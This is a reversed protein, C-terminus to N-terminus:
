EDYIGTKLYKKFSCTDRMMLIKNNSELLSKEMKKWTRFSFKILHIRRVSGDNLYLKLYRPQGTYRFNIKNGNSDCEETVFEIMDIDKIQVSFKHQVRLSKIIQFDNSVYLKSDKIIIFGFCSYFLFLISIQFFLILIIDFDLLRPEQIIHIILLLPLLFIIKFIISLVSDSVFIKM